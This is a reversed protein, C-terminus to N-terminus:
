VRHFEVPYDQLVEPAGDRVVVASGLQMGYREDTSVVNPQIVVVQGPEFTWGATISDEGGPWYESDATGVLPPIIGNGYGHVMVDYMKYPSELLPAMAEYVDSATNGPRVADVMSHYTELAVDWVDEYAQTPDRGVALPRHIQSRYGRYSAGIETTIVDGRRIPRTSPLHWPLPEGPDADEMPASTIFTTARRGAEELYARDLADRLDVERVGPAAEEAIVEMGLDTLEAATRIRELEPESKVALIGTFPATADVLDLGLAEYQGGPLYPFLGNQPRSGTVGIRGDMVGADALRDRLQSAPDPYMTRVDDAEAVERVYQLHNGVGVLLLTPEDPDAFLVFYTLASPTYNTLYDVNTGFGGDGYAILADYGEERMMERVATRRRDMESASFRHYHERRRNVTALRLDSM